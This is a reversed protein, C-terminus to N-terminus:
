EEPSTIFQRMKEELEPSYSPVYAMRVAMTDPLRSHNCFERSDPINTVRESGCVECRYKFEPNFNIKDIRLMETAGKCTTEV